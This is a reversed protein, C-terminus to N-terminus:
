VLVMNGNVRVSFSISGLGGKDYSVPAGKMLVSSVVTNAGTTKGPHLYGTTACPMYYSTEDIYFRLDTLETRADWATLLALQGTTDGPKHNGAFSISGGDMIGLVYKTSEDGFETDDIEAISMGDMSWNGIGLIKNSGLTVKALYGAKSTTSMIEGENSKEL